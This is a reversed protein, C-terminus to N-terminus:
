VLMDPKVFCSIPTMTEINNNLMTSSNKKQHYTIPTNQSAVVNCNDHEVHRVDSTADIILFVM